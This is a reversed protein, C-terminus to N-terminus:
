FGTETPEPYYRRLMQALRVRLARVWLRRTLSGDGRYDLPHIVGSRKATARLRARLRPDRIYRLLVRLSM